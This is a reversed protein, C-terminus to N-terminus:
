NVGAVVVPIRGPPDSQRVGSAYNVQAVVKWEGAVTFYNETVATWRVFGETPAGNDDVGTTIETAETGDPKFFRLHISSAGTLDFQKTDVLLPM